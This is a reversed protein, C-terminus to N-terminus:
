LGAARLILRSVGAPLEANDCHRHLAERFDLGDAALDRLEDLFKSLDLGTEAGLAAANDAGDHWKDRSTDLPYADIKGNARLLGVRPTYTKETATRRIVCGCNMVNVRQKTRTQFHIHNDGFFAAAYRALDVRVLADADAAGRFTNEPRTWIYKHALCVAPRTSNRVAPAPTIPTGFPFTFLDCRRVPLNYPLNKIKEAQVLTWYASQGLLDPQHYPLDHNGPIAYCANPLSDLAFNILPPRPNWKDFIDGAVLIPAGYKNGLEGIEGLPRRMADFWDKEASRAVPANECLHIDSCVVAIVDNKTTM